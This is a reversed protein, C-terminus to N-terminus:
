SVVRNDKSTKGPKADWVWGGIREGIAMEVVGLDVFHVSEAVRVSVKLDIRCFLELVWDSKICVASWVARDFRGWIQLVGSVSM